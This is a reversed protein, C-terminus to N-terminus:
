SAQAVGARERTLSWVAIGALVFAAGVFGIGPLWGLGFM